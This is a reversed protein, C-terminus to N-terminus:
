GINIVKRGCRLKFLARMEEGRTGEGLNEKRLYEPNRGNTEIEKYRENYRAKHIKCGGM